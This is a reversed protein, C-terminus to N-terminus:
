PWDTQKQFQRMDSMFRIKQGQVQLSVTTINYSSQSM